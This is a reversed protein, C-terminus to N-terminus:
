SWSVSAVNVSPTRSGAARGHLPVAAAVRVREATGADTGNALRSADKPERACSQGIDCSKARNRVIRERLRVIPARFSVIQVRIRGIKARFLVIVAALKSRLFIGVSEAM